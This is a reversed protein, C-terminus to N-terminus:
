QAFCVTEEYNRLFYFLIDVNKFATKEAVFTDFATSDIVQGSENDYVVINLGRTQNSYEAGNINISSHSVSNWGSSNLSIALDGLEMSRTIPRNSVAEYAAQGDQMVALYADAYNGDRVLKLGLGELQRYDSDAMGSTYEEQAAIFVTWNQGYESLYRLYASFDTASQLATVTRTKQYLRLAADYDPRQEQRLSYHNLLYKGMFVSIKEAGRSNLHAGLDPTDQSFDIGTEEYNLDLFVSGLRGALEQVLDSRLTNWASLYYQPYHNVPIKTLLLEAGNEACLGAIETLWAAASDNISPAYLPEEFYIENVSDAEAERLTGLTNEALALSVSEVEGRPWPSGVSSANQFMGATYYFGSAKPKFDEATLEAWRSHYKIVPFYVSWKGDSYWEKDYAEAMEWKLAGPSLTDLIYRWQANMDTDAREFLGSVDFVVVAPHQTQLANKLLFYSGSVRQGSTSLNYSCIQYDEYLKMPSLGCGMHSAGLFLVDISNEELADFGTITRESNTVDGGAWNPTLVAQIGAFLGAGICLFLVSELLRKWGFKM